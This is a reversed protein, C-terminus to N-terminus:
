RVRPAIRDLDAWYREMITRDAAHIITGEELLRRLDTLERELQARMKDSSGDLAAEKMKIQKELEANIEPERQSRRMLVVSDEILRRTRDYTKDTYGHKQLLAFIKESNAKGANPNGMSSTIILDIQPQIVIYNEVSQRDLVQIAPDIKSDGDKPTSKDEPWLYLVGGVAITVILLSLVWPRM